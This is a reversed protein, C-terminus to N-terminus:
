ILDANDPSAAICLDYWGQQDTNDTGQLNRGIINPSTAGGEWTTGGDYSRYFGGFDWTNSRATVAYIAEPDASTVAIAIRGISGPIGSKM